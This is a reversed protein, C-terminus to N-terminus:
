LEWARAHSGEWQFRWLSSWPSDKGRAVAGWSSRWCPDEGLPSTWWASVGGAHNRWLSGSFWSRHPNRKQWSSAGAHLERHARIWQGTTVPFGQEAVLSEFAAHVDADGGAGAWERVVSSLSSSRVSQGWNGSNPLVKDKRVRQGTEPSEGQQSQLAWSHGPTVRSGQTDPSLSCKGRCDKLACCESGKVKLSKISYNFTM